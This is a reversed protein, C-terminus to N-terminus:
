AAPRGHHKRRKITKVQATLFNLQDGIETGSPQILNAHYHRAADSRDALNASHDLYAEAEVYMDNVAAYGNRFDRLAKWVLLPFERGAAIDAEEALILSEALKVFAREALGIDMRAPDFM